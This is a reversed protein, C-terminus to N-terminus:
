VGVAAASKWPSRSLRQLRCSIAASLLRETTLAGHECHSGQSLKRYIVAHRLGREARNNTPEVEEHELVAWLAPWVKILNRALGRHYRTRTSKRKAEQCLARLERQLPAVERRLRRDGSRGFARWAEFVNEAIQPCAGGFESQHALPRVTSLDEILTLHDARPLRKSIGAGVAVRRDGSGDAVGEARRRSDMRLRPVRTPRATGAAARRSSACGPDHHHRVGGGRVGAVRHASSGVSLPEASRLGDSLEDTM